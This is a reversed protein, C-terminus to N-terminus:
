PEEKVYSALGKHLKYELKFHIEKSMIRVELVSFIYFVKRINYKDFM